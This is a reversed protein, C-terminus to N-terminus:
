KHVSSYYLKYFEFILCNSDVPVIYKKIIGVETISKIPHLNYYKTIIKVSQYIPPLSVSYRINVEVTIDSDRYRSYPPFYLDYM